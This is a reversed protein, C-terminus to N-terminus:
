RTEDTLMKITMALSTKSMIYLRVSFNWQIMNCSFFRYTNSLRFFLARTYWNHDNFFSPLLTPLAFLLAIALCTIFSWRMRVRNISSIPVWRPFSIFFSHVLSTADTSRLASLSLTWCNVMWDMMSSIFVCAGATRVTRRPHTCPRLRELALFCFDRMVSTSVKTLTHQAIRRRPRLWFIFRKCRM